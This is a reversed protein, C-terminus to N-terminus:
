AAEELGIATHSPRGRKGSPSGGTFERKVISVQANTPNFSQREKAKLNRKAASVIESHNVTNLDWGDAELKECAARLRASMSLKGGRKRSTRKTTGPTKKSM